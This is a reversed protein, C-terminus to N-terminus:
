IINEEYKRTSLMSGSYKPEHHIIIVIEHCSKRSTRIAYCPTSYSYIIIAKSCTLTRSSPLLFLILHLRSGRGVPRIGICTAKVGQEKKREKERQRTAGGWKSEWWWWCLLTYLMNGIVQGIRLPGAFYTKLSGSLRHHWLAIAVAVSCFVWCSYMRTHLSSSRHQSSRDLQALFSQPQQWKKSTTEEMIKKFDKKEHIKNPGFNMLTKQRPAVVINNKRSWESGQRGLRQGKDRRHKTKLSGRNRM